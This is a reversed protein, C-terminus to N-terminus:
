MNNKYLMIGTFPPLIIKMFLLSLVVQSNIFAPYIFAEDYIELFSTVYFGCIAMILSDIAGYIVTSIFFNQFNPSLNAILIEILCQPIFLFRILMLMQFENEQIINLLYEIFSKQLFVQTIRRNFGNKFSLHSTWSQVVSCFFLVCFTKAFEETVVCAAILCLATNFPLFLLSNLIQLVGYMIIFAKQHELYLFKMNLIFQVLKDKARGRLDVDYFSLFLSLTIMFSSLIYFQLVKQNMLAEQLTNEEFKSENLNIFQEEIGWDWYNEEFDVEGFFKIRKWKNM